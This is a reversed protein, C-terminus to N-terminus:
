RAGFWRRGAPRRVANGHCAPNAHRASLRPEARQLRSVARSCGSPTPTPCCGSRSDPQALSSRPWARGRSWGNHCVGCRAGGGHRGHAGAALSAGAAAVGLGADDACRYHGVALGYRRVAGAAHCSCRCPRDYGGGVLNQSRWGPPASSRGRTGRVGGGGCRRRAAGAGSLPAPRLTAAQDAGARIFGLGPRVLRASLARGRRPAPALRPGAGTRHVAFGALFQTGRAGPLIGATRRASRARRPAEALPRARAFRLRIGGAHRKRRRHVVSRRDASRNATRGAAAIRQAMPSRSRCAVPRGGHAAGAPPGAAGEALDGCGRRALLRACALSFGPPGLPGQAAVVAALLAADTKALHAEVVVGIASAALVAGFFGASRSGLLRAGLVFTLLAAVTAALASPLRYPWIAASEPSSFAAVAAAQLWHIGVPKKNRSEDQFRIRIFDGTELMQRTAQAFRAEDRDLPPIAALGPVYLIFCLLCLLAYPRLRSREGVWGGRMGEGAHPTPIPPRRLGVLRAHLDARRSLRAEARGTPDGARTIAMSSIPGGARRPECRHPDAHRRAARVLRPTAGRGRRHRRQCRPPWRSVSQGMSGVPLRTRRHRRWHFNCGTAALGRVGRTRRRARCLPEPGRAFRCQARDDGSTWSGARDRYGSPGRRRAAM